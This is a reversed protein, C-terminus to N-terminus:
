SNAIFYWVDCDASTAAADVTRVKFTASGATPVVTDTLLKKNSTGAVQLFIMSIASILTNTITITGGDTTGSPVLVTGTQQNAVTAASTNHTQGLQKLMRGPLLGPHTVANRLEDFGIGDVPSINNAM